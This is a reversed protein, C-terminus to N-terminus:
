STLNVVEHQTISNLFSPGQMEKLCRSWNEEKIQRFLPSWYLFCLSNKQKLSSNTMNIDMMLILTQTLLMMFDKHKSSQWSLDRFPIMIFTMRSSPYASADRKAGKDFDNLAVQSESVLSGKTHGSSTTMPTTAQLPPSKSIDNMRIM